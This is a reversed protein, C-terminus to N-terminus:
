LHSSCKTVKLLPTVSVMRSYHSSSLTFCSSHSRVFGSFLPSNEKLQSNAVSATGKRQDVLHTFSTYVSIIPTYMLLHTSLWERVATRSLHLGTSQFATINSGPIFCLSVHGRIATTLFFVLSHHLFLQNSLFIWFLPHNQILMHQHPVKIQDLYLYM